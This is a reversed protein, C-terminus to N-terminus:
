SRPRGALAPSEDLCSDATSASSGAASGSPIILSDSEDPISLDGPVRITGASQAERYLEDSSCRLATKGSCAALLFGLSTLVLLRITRM